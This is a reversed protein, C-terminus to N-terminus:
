GFTCVSLHEDWDLECLLRCCVHDCGVVREPQDREGVSCVFVCEFWGDSRFQWGPVYQIIIVRCFFGRQWSAVVFM